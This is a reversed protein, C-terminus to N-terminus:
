MSNAWRITTISRATAPRRIAGTARMEWSFRRCVRTGRRCTSSTPGPLELPCPRLSCPWRPRSRRCRGAGGGLPHRLASPPSFWFPSAQRSRRASAGAPSTSLSQGYNALVITLDNIDVRGNGIFDGTGWSMGTTKGFNTLVITLDNIDVRGDGNADGPLVTRQAYALRFGYEWDETTPNISTGSYVSYSSFSWTLADGGEIVCLSGGNFATENWQWVDGAQDFTGYPGPSAAFTGVPTLSSGSSFNANNTGTPDRVNSPATDSQTPYTWYGAGGPKNPDYYAAKYWENETPLLWHPTTWSACTAASPVTVTGSDQGGGTITYTGSETSGNGQGNQLWNAFRIADYWSVDQVPWNDCGSAVSFKAGTPAAPSYDIGGGIPWTMMNVNYLGYKDSSLFVLPGVPTPVPNSITPLKANLFQCYQADTVDFEGMQYNYDVAGYGTEPDSGNGANGVFVTQLSTDGAPMDFVDARAVGASLAAFVAALATTVKPLAGRRRWASAALGIAALVLLGLSSPEPAASVGAPSTSLSQGYNALM